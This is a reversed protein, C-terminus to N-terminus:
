QSPNSFGLMATLLHVALIDCKNKRKAADSKLVILFEKISNILAPSCYSLVLKFLNM